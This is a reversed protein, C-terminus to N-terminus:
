LPKPAYDADIRLVSGMREYDEFPLISGERAIPDSHLDSARDAIRREFLDAIEDESLGLEALVAETDAGLAPAPGRAAVGAGDFKAPLYRQIPVRGFDGIALDDFFERAALHPDAIVEDAKLIPGAPAGAAQLMGAVEFKDRESTWEGIMGDLADHHETRSAADAFRPDDLWAEHSSAHCFAQWEAENRLSIAVWDDDGTCPYAGRVMGPRRNGDRTQHRGNRQYDALQSELVPLTAELMSVDIIQGEGTRDRHILAAFLAAAGHLGSYPDVWTQGTKTPGEGRYGTVTPVGSAPEMTMGNAPRFANPGTQGFGSLHLLVLRPHREHLEHFDFGLRGVVGPMFNEVVVDADAVLRRVLARGEELGLDIMASRKSANRVTFYINRNWVEGGIDNRPPFLTRNTYNGGPAFAREVRIVNAGLDALIRTALPGVWGQTLAVVTLGDFFRM